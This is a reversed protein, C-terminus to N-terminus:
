LAKLVAGYDKATWEDAQRYEFERGTVKKIFAFWDDIKAGKNKGQWSTYIVKLDGNTVRRDRPQVNPANATRQPRVGDRDPDVMATPIKLLQLIAYKDAISVAKNSAKDGGYDVGEGVVETSVCSGDEAWFTYRMELIAHIYPKGAQSQRELHSAKIITSTSYVGYEAFYPHVANYVQEIGRYNFKQQQNYESKAIPGIARMISIIAKHIMPPLPREVEKLTEEAVTSM